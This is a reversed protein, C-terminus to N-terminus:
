GGVVCSRGGPLGGAGVEGHWRAMPGADADAICDRQGVLRALAHYALLWARGAPVACRVSRTRTAHWMWHLEAGFTDPAGLGGQGKRAVTAFTEFSQVATEVRLGDSRDSASIEGATPQCRSRPRELIVRHNAGPDAEEIVSIDGTGQAWYKVRCRADWTTMWTLRASSTSAGIADDSNDTTPSSRSQM